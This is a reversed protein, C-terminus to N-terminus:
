HKIFNISQIKIKDTITLNSLVKKKLIKYMFPGLFMQTVSLFMQTSSTFMAIMTAFQIGISAFLHILQLFRMKVHTLGSRVSVNMGTISQEYIGCIPVRTDGARVHPDIECVLKEINSVDKHSVSFDKKYNSDHEEFSSVSSIGKSVRCNVDHVIFCFFSLGTQVNPDRSFIAEMFIEEKSKHITMIPNKTKM